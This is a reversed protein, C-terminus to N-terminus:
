SVRTTAPNFPQAAGSGAHWRVTLSTRWPLASPRARHLVHCRTAAAPAWRRLTACAAQGPHRVPQGAAGATSLATTRLVPDARGCAARGTRHGIRHPPTRLRAGCRAGRGAHVASWQRDVRAHGAAARGRIRPRELGGHAGHRRRAGDIRDLLHSRCRWSRRRQCRIGCDAHRHLCAVLRTPDPRAHHGTRRPCRDM